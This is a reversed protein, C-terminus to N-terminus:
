SSSHLLVELLSQTNPMPFHNWNLIWNLYWHSYHLFILFLGWYFHPLIYIQSVWFHSLCTKNMAETTNPMENAKMLSTTFNSTAVLLGRSNSAQILKPAYRLKLPMNSFFLQHCGGLSESFSDTIPLKTFTTESFKKQKHSVYFFRHQAQPLKVTIRHPIWDPFCRNLHLFQPM